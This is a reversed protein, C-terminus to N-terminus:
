KAGKSRVEGEGLERVTVRIEGDGDGVEKEGDFMPSTGVALLRGDASFDVSAVSTAKAGGWQGYQRIRRKALADWVAVVGEGGGSAFTGHVPHFVLANVPYVTDIGDDLSAQRHCKFAYKRAQSEPSDDFWEVAIRGEISSSAFGADDPMCAVARTMFKLSSERRQYPEVTLDGGGGASSHESAKLSLESLDYIHIQRASMAVILKSPSASICFPKAPLRITSQPRSPSTLLHIHLTKDWSSSILLNHAPSLVIGNAAM